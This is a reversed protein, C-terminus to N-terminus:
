MKHPASATDSNETQATGYWLASYTYAVNYPSAYYPIKLTSRFTPLSKLNRQLPPMSDPRLVYHPRQVLAEVSWDPLSM